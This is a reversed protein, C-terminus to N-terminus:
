TRTQAKVVLNPHEPTLKMSEHAWLTEGFFGLKKVLIYRKSRLLERLHKPPREVSMVKMRYEDFPFDQMILWEAGEVDLSLYDIVKPVHFKRLVEKLSITYREYLPLAPVPERKQKKRRFTRKTINEGIIGGYPGRFQVQVKETSGGVFAGVVTCNRHSLGYWYIPNPEICLGTWGYRELAFTNSLNVADNSALDIFYGNPGILEMVIRDQGVQSFWQQQNLAVGLGSTNGYFVHIKSWGIVSEVRQRHQTTPIIQEDDHKATVSFTNWAPLWIASGLFLSMFLFKRVILLKPHKLHKM